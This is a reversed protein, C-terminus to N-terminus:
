LHHRGHAVTATSETLLGLKQNDGIPPPACLWARAAQESAFARAPVGAGLAYMQIVSRVVGNANFISVRVRGPRRRFFALWASRWAADVSSLSAADSLVGLAQDRREDLRGELAHIIFQADDGGARRPEALSVIALPPEAEWTIQFLNKADDPM